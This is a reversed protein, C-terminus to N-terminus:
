ASASKRRRQRRKAREERNRELQESDFRRSARVMDEARRHDQQDDDTVGVFEKVRGFLDVDPLESARRDVERAVNRTRSSKSGSKAVAYAAAGAPPLLLWRVAGIRRSRRGRAADAIDALREAVDAVQKSVKRIDAM